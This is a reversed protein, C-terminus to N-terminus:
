RYVRQGTVVGRGLEPVEEVRRVQLKHMRPRPNGHRDINRHGPLQLGKQDAERVSPSWNLLIM